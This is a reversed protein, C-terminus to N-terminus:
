QYTVLEVSEGLCSCRCGLHRGQKKWEGSSNLMRYDNAYAHETKWNHRFRHGWWSPGVLIRQGHFEGPLFVLTPEKGGGPSRKLGPVSGVAGADGVSAPLNKVVSGDSFGSMRYYKTWVDITLTWEPNELITWTGREKTGASCESKTVGLWLGTGKCLAGYLWSQTNNM